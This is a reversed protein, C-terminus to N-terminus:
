PSAAPTMAVVRSTMALVGFTMALAACCDMEVAGAAHIAEDSREECHRRRTARTRALAAPTMAVGLAALPFCDM